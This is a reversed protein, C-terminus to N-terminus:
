RFEAPGAAQHSCERHPGSCPSALACVNSYWTREVAQSWRERSEVSWQPKTTLCLPIRVSIRRWQGAIHGTCPRESVDMCHLGRSANTIFDEAKPHSRNTCHGTNSNNDSGRRRRQLYVTRPFSGLPRESAPHLLLCLPLLLLM